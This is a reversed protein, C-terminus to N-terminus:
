REALCIRHLICPHQLCHLNRKQTCRTKGVYTICLCFRGYCAFSHASDRLYSHSLNKLIQAYIGNREAFYKPCFYLQGGINYWLRHKKYILRISLFRSPLHAFSVFFSPLEAGLSTNEPRRPFHRMRPPHTNADGLCPLHAHIHYTRQRSSSILM